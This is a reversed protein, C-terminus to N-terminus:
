DLGDNELVNNEVKFRINKLWTDNCNMKLTKSSLHGKLSHCTDRMEVWKAQVQLGGIADNQTGCSDWKM